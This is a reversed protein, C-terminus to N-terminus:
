ILWTECFIPPFTVFFNGWSNVLVSLQMQPVSDRRSSKGRFGSISSGSRFGEPSMDSCVVYLGPFSPILVVGLIFKTRFCPNGLTLSCSVRALIVDMVAASELAAIRWRWQHCVRTYISWSNSAWNERERERLFLFRCVGFKWWLILM